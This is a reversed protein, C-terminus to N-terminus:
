LCLLKADFHETSANALGTDLERWEQNDNDLLLLYPQDNLVVNIYYGMEGADKISVM